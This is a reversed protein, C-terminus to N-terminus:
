FRLLRPIAGRFVKSRCEMNRLQKKTHWQYYKEDFLSINDQPFGLISELTTRDFDRFWYSGKSEKKIKFAHSRFFNYRPELKLNEIRNDTKIGNIHRVAENITLFRRIHKEMVWRHYPVYGYCNARPHRPIKYVKYGNHLSPLVTYPPLKRPM